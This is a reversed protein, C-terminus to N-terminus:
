KKRENMREKRRKTMWKNDIEKKKREKMGENMWEKNIENM